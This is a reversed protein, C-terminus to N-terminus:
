TGVYKGDFLKLSRILRRVYYEKCLLGGMNKYLFIAFLELYSEISSSCPVLELYLFFIKDREYM